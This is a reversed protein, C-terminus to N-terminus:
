WLILPHDSPILDHTWATTVPIGLKEVLELFGDM